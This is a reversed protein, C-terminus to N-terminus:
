NRVACSATVVIIIIQDHNLKVCKYVQGNALFTKELLTVLKPGLLKSKGDKM